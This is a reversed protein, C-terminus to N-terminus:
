GHVHPWIENEDIDTDIKDIIYAGPLDRRVNSSNVTCDLLFEGFYLAYEDLCFLPSVLERVM